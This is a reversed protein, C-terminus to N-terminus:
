RDGRLYELYCKICALSYEINEADMTLLVESQHDRLWINFASENNDAFNLNKM